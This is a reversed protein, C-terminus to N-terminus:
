RGQRSPEADGDIRRNLAEYVSDFHPRLEKYGHIAILGNLAELVFVYRTLDDDLQHLNEITELFEESLEEPM